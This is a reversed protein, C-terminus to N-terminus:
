RAGSFINQSFIGLPESNESGSLDLRMTRRFRDIRGPGVQVGLSLGLGDRALIHSSPVIATPGM